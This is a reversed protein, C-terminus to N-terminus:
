VVEIKEPLFFTGLVHFTRTECSGEVASMVSEPAGVITSEPLNAVIYTHFGYGAYKPKRYFFGNIQVYIYQGNSEVREWVDDKSGITHDQALVQGVALILLLFLKKMKASISILFFTLFILVNM